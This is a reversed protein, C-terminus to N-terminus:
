KEWGQKGILPVFICGCISKSIYSDGRKQILTLEQQDRSGIPIVLRGYNHLQDVLEEPPEPASATVIIADFPAAEPWGLTGNGTKIHVNEYGLDHLLTKANKALSAHREVSYVQATLEALIATQYGSGTGIELVRENGQLELIQTMLAVMYPQSITQSCDINLPKDNYAKSKDNAMVFLHRGVKGMAELVREDHIGRAKLQEKVMIKRSNEFNDM